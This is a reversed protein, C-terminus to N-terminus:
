ELQAKNIYQPLSLLTDIEATVLGTPGNYKAFYARKTPFNSQLFEAAVEEMMVPLEDDLTAYTVFSDHVPLCPYQMKVFRLM